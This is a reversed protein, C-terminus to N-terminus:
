REIAYEPSSQILWITDQVRLRRGDENSADTNAVHQVLVDFMSQSMGRNMFLLDFYDVLRVPDMALAIGPALDVRIDEPDGGNGQWSWYVNAGLGNLVRAAYTDTMIQFEPALLGLDSLEGTPQFDPLFFNFVTPSRMAAQALSYEPNWARFRGDGTSAHLARWAHSVRLLPERLKGRGSELSPL